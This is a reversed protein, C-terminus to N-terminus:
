HPIIANNEEQETLLNKLATIIEDVTVPNYTKKRGYVEKTYIDPIKMRGAGIETVAYSIQELCDKICIPSNDESIKNQNNFSYGYKIECKRVSVANYKVYFTNVQNLAMNELFRNLIKILGLIEPLSKTMIDRIKVQMPESFDSILSYNIVRSNDKEVIDLSALKSENMLELVKVTNDYNCELIM